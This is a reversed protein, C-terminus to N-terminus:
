LMGGFKDEIKQWKWEKDECFINDFNNCYKIPKITEKNYKEICYEDKTITDFFHGYPDAYVGYSENLKEDTDFLVCIEGSVIGSLFEYSYEADEEVGEMFCFGVSKTYGKHKTTNILDEGNLLKDFEKKSMFRFLRM